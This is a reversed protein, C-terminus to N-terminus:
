PPSLATIGSVGSILDTLQFLDRPLSTRDPLRELDRHPRVRLLTGQRGQDVAPQHEEGKEFTAVPTIAASDADM